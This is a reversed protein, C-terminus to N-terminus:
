VARPVRESLPVALFVCDASSTLLDNWGGITPALSKVLGLAHEDEDWVCHLRCDSRLLLHELHQRGSRSLGAVGVTLPQPSASQQMIRRTSLTTPVIHLARRRLISM